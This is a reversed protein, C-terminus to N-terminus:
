SFGSGCGCGGGNGKGGGAGHAAFGSMLETLDQRECFPCRVQDKKDFATLEEFVHGCSNCRFEFLPM